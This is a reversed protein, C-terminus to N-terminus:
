KEGLVLGSQERKYMEGEQLVSRSHSIGLTLYVIRTLDELYVRDVHGQTYRRDEQFMRHNQRLGEWRLLEVGSVKGKHFAKASHEGAPM